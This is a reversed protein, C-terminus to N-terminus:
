AISSSDVCVAANPLAVARNEMSKRANRPAMGRGM